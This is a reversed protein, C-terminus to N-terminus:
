RYRNYFKVDSMWDMFLYTRNDKINLVFFYMLIYVPSDIKHCAKAPDGQDQSITPVQESSVSSM